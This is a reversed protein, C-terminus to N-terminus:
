SCAEEHFRQWPYLLQCANARVEAQTSEDKERAAYTPYSVIFNSDDNDADAHFFYNAYPVIANSMICYGTYGGSVLEVGPINFRKYWELWRWINHAAMLESDQRNVAVQKIPQGSPDLLQPWAVHMNNKAYEKFVDGVGAPNLHPWAFPKGSCGNCLGDIDYDELESLLPIAPKLGKNTYGDKPNAPNNLWM